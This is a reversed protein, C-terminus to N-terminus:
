TREHPASQASPHNSFRPRYAEICISYHPYTLIRTVIPDLVLPLARLPLVVFWALWRNAKALKRNLRGIYQSIPGTCFTQRELVLNAQACLEAFMAQTYGRRVHWGTETTPFPGEDGPSMAVYRLYPATMFLYGGPKLTAAIDRVLKRDDLVHEVVECCIAVDFQAVLDCRKDLQRVDVIDFEASAVGCISARERAIRQNAEDWSLGLARYGRKAAGITFAGTGCGVDLLREQNRTRYLRSKLWLWRDLTDLGGHILTARWGFWRVLTSKDVTGGCRWSADDFTARSLELNSRGGGNFKRCANGIDARRSPRRKGSRPMM